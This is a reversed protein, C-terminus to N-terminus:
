VFVGFSNGSELLIPIPKGGDDKLVLCVGDIGITLVKCYGDSVFRPLVKLFFLILVKQVKKRMFLSTNILSDNEKLYKNLM